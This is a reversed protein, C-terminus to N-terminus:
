DLVRVEPIPVVLKGGWAAIGSMQAAIEDRLNWPLILVYDPKSEFIKEPSAIPIHTGPLFMGQKQPSRDVTYDIIDSRIGCFNLLTNGKAPAGYGVIKKGARKVDILFRLLDLKTKNVQESFNSYSSIDNLGASREEAL